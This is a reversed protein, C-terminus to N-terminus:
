MSFLNLFLNGGLVDQRLYSMQMQYLTADDAWARGVGTMEIASLNAIRTNITLNSKLDPRIETKTEFVTAEPSSPEFWVLM